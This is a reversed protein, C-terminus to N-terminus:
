TSKQPDDAPPEWVELIGSSLFHPTYLKQVKSNIKNKNEGVRRGVSQPPTSYIPRPTVGVGEM